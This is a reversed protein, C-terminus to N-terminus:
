RSTERRKESLTLDSSVRGGGGGRLDEGELLFYDFCV